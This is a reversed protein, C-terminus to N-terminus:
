NLGGAAILGVAPQGGVIGASVKPGILTGGDLNILTAGNVGVVNGGDLNILTGGDLNILTGGDLNILTGGDLNILTAGNVGVVNGGDLNILTGGDLNILRPNIAVGQCVYSGSVPTSCGQSGLSLVPQGDPMTLQLVPVPAKVPKSKKGAKAAGTGNFLNQLHCGLDWWACSRARVGGPTVNANTVLVQVPNGQQMLIRLNNQPFFSKQVGKVGPRSTVNAVIEQAAGNPVGVCDISSGDASMCRGDLLLRSTSPDSASRVGVKAYVQRTVGAKDPGITVMAMATGTGRPIFGIDASSGSATTTAALRGDVDYFDFTGQAVGFGVNRQIVAVNMGSAVPGTFHLFALDTTLTSQGAAALNASGPGILLSLNAADSPASAYVELISETPDKPNPVQKATTVISELNRGAPQLVLRWDCKASVLRDRVVRLPMDTATALWRRFDKGSPCGAGLTEQYVYVKVTRKTQGDSTLKTGPAPDIKFVDGNGIDDRYAVPVSRLSTVTRQTIEVPVRLQVQSAWTNAAFVTAPFEYAGNKKAPQWAQPVVVNHASVVPWSQTYVTESAGAASKTWVGVVLHKGVLNSSSVTYKSSRERLFSCTNLRDFGPPCARWEYGWQTITSGQDNWQGANVVATDGLALTPDVFQPVQTNLPVKPIGTPTCLRQDTGAPCNFKVPGDSLTITGAPNVSQGLWTQAPLVALQDFAVPQGNSSYAVVFPDGKVFFCRVVNTVATDCGNFFAGGLWDRVTKYATSTENTGPHLQVGILDYFGATWLYWSTSEIGARVSDVFTRALYASGQGADINRDPVAGPGAVGYNVETDWVPKNMAAPDNGTGDAIAQRWKLIDAYREAPGLNAAPYSHITWADFPYGTSKLVGAMPRIFTKLPGVLRTTVSPAIVKTGPHISKVIDYTRKTLDAMQDISGVWFTRLNAENWVEVAGIRGGYREMVARVYASFTDPNAPASASGAGWRPDGATPDLAAWQPTLGLVLLVKAGAREVQAVEEDLLTWDWVGQRPNVDRWATKVDWLRIYGAPVGPSGNEEPALGLSFQDNSVGTGAGSAAPAVTLPLMGLLM